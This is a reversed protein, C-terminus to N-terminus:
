FDITRMKRLGEGYKYFLWPIPIMAATIFALLSNGWGYGLADYMRRGALPLLAGMLSRLITNAALASAAFTTFADVLYVQVTFTVFLFGFGLFGTGIIPVIWHTKAEAAWGYWFLGVPIFFAGPIMPLLRYEPKMEGSGAKWKLIRDSMTGIIVLAILSGTGMGLFTLGDIGPSFGYVETFVYSFTAFMLYLCGFCVGVYVSLALVVPSLVLMRLPRIIAEVFYKTGKLPPELKSRLNPNGTEKRLRRTKRELIIPAYTERMFVFVLIACVGGAITLVWFIWKWGKAESLFGGAVPGLMPGMLLGMAFAAMSVGREEQVILDAISGGGNTIPASGFVGALFRFVVLMGMNTSLGCAATFVTFLVACVYYIPMRGYIESLPAFAMPGIAFGLVYVSVCFSALYENTCHFKEMIELVAPAMMSSSLPTLFSMMSLLGVNINKKTRSWNRPNQPDTDSDWFVINPDDPDDNPITKNIPLTDSRPGPEM